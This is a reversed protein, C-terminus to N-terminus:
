RKHGEKELTIFKIGTRPFVNQQLKDNQSNVKLQFQKQGFTTTGCLLYM